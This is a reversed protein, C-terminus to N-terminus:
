WVRHSDCHLRKWDLFDPVISRHFYKYDYLDLEPVTGSRFLCAAEDPQFHVGPWSETGWWKKDIVSWARSFVASHRLWYYTGSYHWRSVSGQFGKGLKKFSGALAHSSLAKEVLPWYDLCTAYMMDTWSHVTVGASVERTVGKSHAFFTVENRDLSQVRSMLPEFSVVERINPNNEVVLFEVDPVAAFSQKVLEPSDMGTGTVISVVKRGNFLGVRKLLEGVNRQWMGNGSYPGIHYILNRTIPGDFPDTAPYSLPRDLMSKRVVAEEAAIALREEYAREMSELQAKRYVDGPRPQMKARPANPDAEFRQKRRAPEAPSGTMRHECASCEAFVKDKLRQRARGGIRILCKDLQVLEHKCYFAPSEKLSCGCEVVEGTPDGRFMCPLSYSEQEAETM